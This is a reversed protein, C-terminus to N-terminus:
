RRRGSHDWVGPFRGTDARMRRNRTLDFAWPVGPGRLRAGTNGPPVGAALPRGRRVWLSARNGAGREQCAGTPSSRPTTAWRPRVHFDALEADIPGIEDDLVASRSYIRGSWGFETFGDAPTRGDVCQDGRTADTWMARELEILQQRRVTASCTTPARPGPDAVRLIPRTPPLRSATAVITTLMRRATTSWCTCAPPSRSELPAPRATRWGDPRQVPMVTMTECRELRCGDALWRSRVSCHPTSTRSLPGGSRCTSWRRARRRRRCSRSMRDRAHDVRDIARRNSPQRVRRGYERVRWPACGGRRRDRRREDRLEERLRSRASSSADSQPRTRRRIRTSRTPRDITVRGARRKGCAAAPGGPCGVTVGSRHDVSRRRGVRDAHHEIQQAVVEVGLGIHHRISATWPSISSVTKATSCTSVVCGSASGSADRRLDTLAIAPSAPQAVLRDVRVHRHVVGSPRADVGSWRACPWLSPCPCGTAAVAGPLFPERM